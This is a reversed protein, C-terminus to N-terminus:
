DGSQSSGRSFPFAVWGLIRAQLIGHVIYDHPQLSDSMVSRSESEKVKVFFLLIMESLILHKSSFSESSVSHQSPGQQKLESSGSPLRQPHPVMHASLLISSSTAAMNKHFDLPPVNWASSVTWAFGSLSSHAQCLCFVPPSWLFSLPLLCPHLATPLYPTLGRPAGPQPLLEYKRRPSGPPGTALVGQEQQVPGPNSEQNPFSSQM